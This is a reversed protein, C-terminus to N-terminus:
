KCRYSWTTVAGGTATKSIPYGSTNYKYVYDTVTEEESLSIMTVRTINNAPADVFSVHSYPTPHDDYEFLLTFQQPWGMIGKSYNKTETNPYEFTNFQSPQDVFDFEQEVLQGFSNYNYIVSILLSFGSYVDIQELKGESNYSFLQHSVPELLETENDYTEIGILQGRVNYNYHTTTSGNANVSNSSVVKSGSYQYTIVYVNNGGITHSEEIPYCSSIAPNDTESCGAYLLMVVCFFFSAAALIKKGSPQTGKM